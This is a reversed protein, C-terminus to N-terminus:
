SMSVSSSQDPSRSPETSPSASRGTNLSAATVTIVPVVWALLAATRLHRNPEYRHVFWAWFAADALSDAAAGFPSVTGIKRALRGDALDTSGRAFGVLPPRHSRAPQRPDPHDREGLRDLPSARANGPTHRRTGLEHADV